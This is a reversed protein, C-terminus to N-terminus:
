RQKANQKKRKKKKKEKQLEQWALDSAIGRVKEKISLPVTHEVQERLAGVRDGLDRLKYQKILSDKRRIIADITKKHQKEYNKETQSKQKKSVKKTPM